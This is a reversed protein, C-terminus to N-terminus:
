QSVDVAAIDALGGLLQVAKLRVIHNSQHLRDVPSEADREPTHGGRGPVLLLLHQFKHLQRAQIWTEVTHCPPHPTHTRLTEPGSPERTFCKSLMIPLLFVDSDSTFCSNSEQM